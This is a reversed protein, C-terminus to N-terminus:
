PELNRLSIFGSIMNKEWSNNTGYGQSVFRQGEDFALVNYTNRKMEVM